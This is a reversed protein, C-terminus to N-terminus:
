AQPSPGPGAHFSDPMQRASNQCLQCLQREPALLALHALDELAHWTSFMKRINGTSTGTYAQPYPPDEFPYIHDLFQPLLTTTFANTAYVVKETEVVGCDTEARWGGAASVVRQVPTHTQLNLGHKEICTPIKVTDTFVATRVTRYPFKGYRQALHRRIM